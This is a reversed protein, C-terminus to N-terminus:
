IAEAKDIAMVLQALVGEGIPVIKEAAKCALILEPQIVFAKLLLILDDPAIRVFSEKGIMEQVVPIYAQAEEITPYKM